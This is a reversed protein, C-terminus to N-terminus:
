FQQGGAALQQFAALAYQDGDIDAGVVAIAHAHRGGINAWQIFRQGVGRGFQLDDDLVFFGDGADLVGEVRAFGALALDGQDDVDAIM